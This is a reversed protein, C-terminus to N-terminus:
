KEPKEEMAKSAQMQGNHMAGLIQQEKETLWKTVEILAQAEEVGTVNVRKMFNSLLKVATLDNM